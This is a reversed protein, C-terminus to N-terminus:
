SLIRQKQKQFEEETLIKAERLDALKRLEDAVHVSSVENSPAAAAVGRPQVADDAQRIIVEILAYWHRAQNAALRYVISKRKVKRDLFTVSFTPSSVDNVVLRLEVRNVENAEVRKGSLGGILAGVPGAVAQGILAGGVQSTRSTKTIATGDEHIECRLIDSYPITRALVQEGRGRSALCVLRRGDDLAIATEGDESFFSQSAKFDPRSGLYEGLAKRGQAPVVFKAFIVVVSVIIAVFWFAGDAM